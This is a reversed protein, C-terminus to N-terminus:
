RSSKMGPLQLAHWHIFMESVQKQENVGDVRMLDELGELWCTERFGSNLVVYLESSHRATPCRLM